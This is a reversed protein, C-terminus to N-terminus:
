KRYEQWYFWDEKITPQYGLRLAKDIMEQGREPQPFCNGGQQNSPWNSPRPVHEGYKIRVGVAYVAPPNDLAAARELWTYGGLVDPGFPWLVFQGMQEDHNEMWRALEYMAAPDGRHAPIMRVWGPVHFWFFLLAFLTSSVAAARLFPKGGRILLVLLPIGIL